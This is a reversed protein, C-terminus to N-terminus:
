FGVFFLGVLGDDGLEVLQSWGCIFEVSLAVPRLAAFHARGLQAAEDAVM